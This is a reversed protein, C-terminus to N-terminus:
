ARLQEDECDCGRLRMTKRGPLPPCPLLVSTGGERSEKVAKSVEEEKVTVCEGNNQVQVVVGTCQGGDASERRLRDHPRHSLSLASLFTLHRPRSQLSLCATLETLRLM